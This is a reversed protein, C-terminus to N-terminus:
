SRSGEWKQLVARVEAVPPGGGPYKSIGLEEIIDLSERALPISESQRGIEPADHLLNALMLLQGAVAEVVGAERSLRLATEVMEIATSIDGEGHSLAAAHTLTIAYMKRDGVEVHVAAARELTEKAKRVQKGKSGKGGRAAYIGGIGTLCLGIGPLDGISEFIRLARRWMALAQELNGRDNFVGGITHLIRARL